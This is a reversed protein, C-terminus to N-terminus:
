RLYNRVINQSPIHQFVIWSYVFDFYGDGFLSLDSGSNVHAHASPIGALKHGALKVMEDSIDVGHIEGFHRSMPIMLRGPGCGIDLARREKSPAAPLRFFEAELRPVIEGASALFEEESQRQRGFGVYYNADDKARRNWDERM